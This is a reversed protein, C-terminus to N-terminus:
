RDEAIFFEAATVGTTAGTTNYIAFLCANNQVQPFWTGFGYLADAYGKLALIDDLPIHVIPYYLTVGFAGATGTSAALTVSAVASFGNGGSVCPVQVIRSATNFGTGGFTVAPSTNGSVGQDDTYSLVATTATTGIATYIELGCEIGRAGSYRTGSSSLPLNTTQAGTVIASLGGQHALRDCITVMGGPSTSPAYDIVAKVIRMTGASTVMNGSTLTWAGATTNDPSTAASPASGAAPFGGQLWSSHPRGAVTTLANKVLRVRQYPSGIMDYYAQESTITM